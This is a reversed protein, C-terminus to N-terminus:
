GRILCPNFVSLSPAETRGFAGHSDGFIPSRIIRGPVKLDSHQNNTVPVPGEGRGERAPLPPITRRNKTISPLEILNIPEFRAGRAKPSTARFFVGTAQEVRSLFCTLAIWGIAGRDETAKAFPSAACM